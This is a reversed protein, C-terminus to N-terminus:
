SYFLTLQALPDDKARPVRTRSADPGRPARRSQSGAEEGGTAAADKTTPQEPAASQIPKQSYPQFAGVLIVQRAAGAPTGIWNYVIRSQKWLFAFRQVHLVPAGDMNRSHNVSRESM